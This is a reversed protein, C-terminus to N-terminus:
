REGMCQALFDQGLSKLGAPTLPSRANHTLDFLCAGVGDPSGAVDQPPDLEVWGLADGVFTATGVCCIACADVEDYPEVPPDGDLALALLDYPTINVEGAVVGNGVAAAVVGGNCRDGGMHTEVLRLRDGERRVTQVATFHGTGGGYDYTEVVQGQPTEGLWRWSISGRMPADEPLDAFRYRTGYWGWQDPGPGEADPEPVLSPDDCATVDVTDDEGWHQFCLPNVPAGDVLLADPLDAAAVAAPAALALAGALVTTMRM